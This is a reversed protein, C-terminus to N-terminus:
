SFRNMDNISDLRQIPAWISTFQIKVLRISILNLSLESTSEELSNGVYVRPPSEAPLYCLNISMEESITQLNIKWPLLLFIKKEDCGTWLCFKM